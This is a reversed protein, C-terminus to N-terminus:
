FFKIAIWILGGLALGALIGYLFWKFASTTERVGEKLLKTVDESLAGSESTVASDVKLEKERIQYNVIETRLYEVEREL